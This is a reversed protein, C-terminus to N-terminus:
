RCILMDFMSYPYRSPLGHKTFSEHPLSKKISYAM